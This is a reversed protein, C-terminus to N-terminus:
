ICSKTYGIGSHSMVAKHKSYVHNQIVSEVALDSRNTHEIYMYPRISFATDNVWISVNEWATVHDCFCTPPHSVIGLLRPFFVRKRLVRARFRGGEGPFFIITVLLAVSDVVRKNQNIDTQM